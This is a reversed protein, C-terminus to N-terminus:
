SIFNIMNSQKKFVVVPKETWVKWVAVYPKWLRTGKVIEDAEDEARRRLDM